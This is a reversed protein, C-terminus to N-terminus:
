KRWGDIIKAAELLNESARWSIFHMGVSVVAMSLAVWAVIATVSAQSRELRVKGNKFFETGKQM